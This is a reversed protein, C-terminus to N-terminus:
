HFSAAAGTLVRVCDVNSPYHTSGPIRPSYLEHRWGSVSDVSARGSFNLCADLSSRLIRRVGDTSTSHRGNWRGQNAGPDVVGIDVHARM